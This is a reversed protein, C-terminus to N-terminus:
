GRRESIGLKRRIGAATARYVFYTLVGLAIEIGLCAALAAIESSAIKGDNGYLLLVFILYIVIMAVLAPAKFVNGCQNAVERNLFAPSAGLKKLDEFVYRNNLAITQCRTHCIVLATLICVIFIFLFTM